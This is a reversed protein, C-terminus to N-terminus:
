SSIEGWGVGQLISDEARTPDMDESVWKREVRPEPDTEEWEAFGTWMKNM